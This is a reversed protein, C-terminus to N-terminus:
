PNYVKQKSFIPDIVYMIGDITMSIEVINTSVVLKRRPNGNEKTPLPTPDFIKHQM